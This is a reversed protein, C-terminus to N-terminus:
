ALETDDHSYPPHCICLIRLPTDHTNKVCHLTAPKIYVTDGTEIDFCMNDLTMTGRGGTVHYVEGAAMHRHLATACGAHVVAEAVSLGMDGHYWPHLLERIESGDKTIYPIIDKYVTKMCHVM